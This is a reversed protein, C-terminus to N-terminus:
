QAPEDLHHREFPTPPTSASKKKSKRSKKARPAQNTKTTDSSLTDTVIESQSQKQVENPESIGCGRLLLILAFALLMIALAILGLREPMMM